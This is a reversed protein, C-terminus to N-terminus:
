TKKYYLSEGAELSEELVVAQTDVEPNEEENKELPNALVDEKKSTLIKLIHTYQPRQSTDTNRHVYTHTLSLSLSCMQKTYCLMRFSVLVPDHAPLNGQPLRFTTFPAGRINDNYNGLLALLTMESRPISFICRLTQTIWTLNTDLVGYRMSSM